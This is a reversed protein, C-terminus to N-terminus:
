DSKGNINVLNLITIVNFETVTAAKISEWQSEICLCFEWGYLTICYM